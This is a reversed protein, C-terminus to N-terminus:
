LDEGISAAQTSWGVRSRTFQLQADIQRLMIDQQEQGQINSRAIGAIQTGAGIVFGIIAGIPGGVAAGSATASITGSVASITRNIQTMAIRKNRQGIYDDNLMLEKNWYYEAWNMGESVAAQVTQAVAFAAVAKATSNKDTDNSVKTTSTQNSTDIAESGSNDIKLTIVISRNDQAM